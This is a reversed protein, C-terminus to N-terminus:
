GAGLTALEVTGCSSGLWCPTGYADSTLRAGDASRYAAPRADAAVLVAAAEAADDILEQTQGFGVVAAFDRQRSHAVRADGVRGHHLAALEHREDFAHTGDDRVAPRFEFRHEGCGIELPRCSWM